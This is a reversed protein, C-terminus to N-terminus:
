QVLISQYIAIETQRVDYNCCAASLFTLRISKQAPSFPCAFYGKRIDGPIGQGAPTCDNAKVRYKYTTTVSGLGWIPDAVCPTM